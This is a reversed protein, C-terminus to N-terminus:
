YVKDGNCIRRRGRKDKRVGGHDGAVVFVDGEGTEATVSSAEGLPAVGREGEADEM